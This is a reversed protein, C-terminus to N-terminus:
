TNRVGSTSGGPARGTKRDYASRPTGYHPNLGVGSYAFETMNTRGVAIFGAARLRAIAAADEKASPAGDLLKSAARTTEGALDFLDKVSFPIGAFRPVARGAKRQGDWFAAEERAQDARVTLFARAGEGSKDGIRALSQEVLATSTTRGDALVAALAQLTEVM